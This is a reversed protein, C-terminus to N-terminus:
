QSVFGSAEYAAAIKPDLMINLNHDDSLKENREKCRAAVWDAFPQGVRTYIINCVYARPMKRIEKTVPLSDVVNRHAM